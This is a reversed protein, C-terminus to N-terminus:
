LNQKTKNENMDKHVYVIGLVTHARPSKVKSIYTRVVWLQGFSWGLSAFLIILSLETTESRELIMRKHKWLKECIKNVKDNM